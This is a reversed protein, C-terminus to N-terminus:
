YFFVNGAAKQELERQLGIVVGLIFSILLRVTIEWYRLSPNDVEISQQQEVQFLLM